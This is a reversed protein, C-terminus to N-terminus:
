TGNFCRRRSFLQNPNPNCAGSPEYKFPSFSVSIFCAAQAHDYQVVWCDGADLGTRSLCFAKCEDFTISLKRRIEQSSTYPSPIDISACGSADDEM